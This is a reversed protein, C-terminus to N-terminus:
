RLLLVIINKYARIRDVQENLLDQRDFMAKAGEYVVEGTSDQVNITDYNDDIMNLVDSLICKNATSAKIMRKM